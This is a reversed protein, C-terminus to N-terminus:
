ARCLFYWLVTGGALCGGVLLSWWAMASISVVRREYSSNRFLQDLARLYAVEGSLARLHDYDAKTMFGRFMLRNRVPDFSLRDRLAVPFELGPPLTQLRVTSERAALRKPVGQRAPASDAAALRQTGNM